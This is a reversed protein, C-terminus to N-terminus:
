HQIEIGGAKYYVLVELTVSLQYSKWGNWPSTYNRNGPILNVDFKSNTLPKINSINYMLM